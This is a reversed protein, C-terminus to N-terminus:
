FLVHCFLRVRTSCIWKGLRCWQMIYPVTGLTNMVYYGYRIVETVSWAVLRPLLGFSNRVPPMAHLHGSIAWTCVFTGTNHEKHSVLDM